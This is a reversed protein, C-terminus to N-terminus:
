WQRSGPVEGESRVAEAPQLEEKVLRLRDILELGDAAHCLWKSTMVKATIVPEAEVSCGAGVTSCRAHKLLFGPVWIVLARTGHFVSTIVWTALGVDVAALRELVRAIGHFQLAAGGLREDINQGFLGVNGFRTCRV